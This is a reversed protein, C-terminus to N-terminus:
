LNWFHYFAKKGAQIIKLMELLESGTIDFTQLQNEFPFM